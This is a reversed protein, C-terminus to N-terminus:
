QFLSSMSSNLQADHQLWLHLVITYLLAAIEILHFCIQSRCSNLYLCCRWFEIRIIIDVVGLKHYNVPVFQQEACAIQYGAPKPAATKSGIALEPYSIFPCGRRGFGFLQEIGIPAPLTRSTNIKLIEYHR